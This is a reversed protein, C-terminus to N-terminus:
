MKAIINIVESNVKYKMLIKVTMDRSISDFAKACDTSMIVRPKRKVFIKKM